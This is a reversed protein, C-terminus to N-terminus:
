SLELRQRARDRAHVSEAYAAMDSEMFKMRNVPELASALSASLSSGLALGATHRLLHDVSSRTGPITRAGAVGRGACASRAVARGQARSHRSTGLHGVQDRLFRPAAHRHWRWRCLTRCHHPRGEARRGGQHSPVAAPRARRLCPRPRGRAAPNAARRDFTRRNRAVIGAAAQSESPLSLDAAAGGHDLYCGVGERYVAHSRGLGLLTVTVDKRTAISTTTQTGLHDPWHRADGGDDRLLDPGSQLGSVFTESCLINAVFGTAVKPVDRARAATLALASLAATAALIVILKRRTM